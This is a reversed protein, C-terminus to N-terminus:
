VPLWLSGHHTERGRVKVGVELWRLDGNGIYLGKLSFYDLPTQWHGREAGNLAEQKPGSVGSDRAAGGEFTPPHQHAYECRLSLNM